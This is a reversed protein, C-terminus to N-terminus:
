RPRVTALRMRKRHLAVGGVALIFAVLALSSPEPVVAVEEIELTLNGRTVGLCLMCDDLSFRVTEASALTFTTGLRHQFALQPTAWFERQVGASPISASKFVFDSEWQKLCDDHPCAPGQRWSSWAGESPIVYYTGAELRVYVTSSNISRTDLTIQMTATASAAFLSILGIVLLVRVFSKM